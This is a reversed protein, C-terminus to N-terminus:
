KQWQRCSWQEVAAGPDVTFLCAIFFKDSVAYILCTCMPNHFTNVRQGSNFYHCQSKNTWSQALRGAIWLSSMVESPLQRGLRSCVRVKKATLLREYSSQYYVSRLYKRQLHQIEQPISCPCPSVTRLVAWSLGLSDALLIYKGPIFHFTFRNLIQKNEMRTVFTGKYRSVNYEMSLLMLLHQSFLLNNIECGLTDSLTDSSSLEHFPNM